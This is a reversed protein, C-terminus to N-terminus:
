CPIEGIADLVASGEVFHQLQDGGLAVADPDARDAFGNAVVGSGDHGHLPRELIDGVEDGHAIFGIREGTAQALCQLADAIGEEQEVLIPPKREEVTLGLVKKPAPPLFKFPSSDPVLKGLGDPAPELGAIPLGDPRGHRASGPTNEAARLGPEIDVGIGRRLPQGDIEAVNRPALLGFLVDPDAVFPEQEDRLRGIVHDPVPVEDAIGQPPVFVELRQEAVVGGFHLRTGSDQIFRMWGSSASRTMSLM